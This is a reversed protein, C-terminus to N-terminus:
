ASAKGRPLRKVPVWAGCVVRKRERRIEDGDALLTDVIKYHPEQVVASGPYFLQERLCESCRYRRRNPTESVPRQRVRPSLPKLPEPHQDKKAFHRETKRLKARAATLSWDAEWDGAMMSAEQLRRLADEADRIALRMERPTRPESLHENM